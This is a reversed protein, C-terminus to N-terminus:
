GSPSVWRSSGASAFIQDAYYIIANIGTIQQFVALWFGIMPPRRWERAFVEGWSARDGEQRLATKIADLRPKFDVGPRIKTPEAAADSRRGMKMLWRPSRPAVVAVAFLLLRPVAAAGLMIRWADRKSLWGDILALVIGLTIALQYASVFRGRLTTPALEAAYLPAAVVAAVGVGAGIILRGAVLVVTDPAL